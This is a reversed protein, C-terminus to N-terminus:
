LTQCGIGYDCSDKTRDWCGGVFYFRRPPLCSAIIFIMCLFFFIWFIGRLFIQGRRLNPLIFVNHLTASGSGPDLANQDTSGPDPIPLFYPDPGQIPSSCCPDYKRSSLFWKKPNFYMFETIRIRSGPDPISFLRIRSGLGLIFMGSGCCQHSTAYM